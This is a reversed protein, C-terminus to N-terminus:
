KDSPPKIKTNGLPLLMEAGGIGGGVVRPSVGNWREVIELDIFSANKSLADGRIQIAEAEGRAKIIATEAEVQAQQQQFIAKNAEQEQVMKREIAAELKDSLSINEVVLDVVMLIGGIKEQASELARKKVESRKQVIEQATHEKTVEKMAEDVRPAVLSTFPDGKYKQFIAVVSEQPIRYLVELRTEVEQLDRSICIAQLSATRQRISISVIHSVFPMKFGFGEPKFDPAVKGLTVQVGRYGPQVIYIAQAGVTVLVLILVAGGILIGRTTNSM